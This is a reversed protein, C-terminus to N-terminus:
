RVETDEDNGNIIFNVNATTAHNDKPGTEVIIEYMYNDNPNNDRM